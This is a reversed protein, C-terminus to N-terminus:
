SVVITSGEFARWPDTQAVALGVLLALSLTALRRIM